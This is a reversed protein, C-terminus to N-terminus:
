KYLAAEVTSNDTFFYVLTGDLSGNRGEEELAEVVNEFEKWNSSEDEADKEWLGIRFRVGKVSLMTSGFGKGSADGFGYLIQLVANSRILVDPPSTPKLLEELAFLDQKLRETAVVTKPPPAGEEEAASLMAHAELDTIKEDALKQHVYSLYRKESFKWGDDDRRPLHKALILHFGKLFPTIVEFTMSLHCLFGRVRELTKYDVIEDESKIADILSKVSKQGKEWKAVTVSQSIKGDVTSFLAGTWAGTTRMPPRRKRPADQIGLRQLGAAIMRAIQWATEEDPGSARLNDVFALVDGAIGDWLDNWKAVRPLSPDFERSGPLNLIVRDWRLPNGPARRDGRIIEEAWYYFRVAYYPSPRFGM